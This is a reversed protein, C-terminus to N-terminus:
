TIQILNIFLRVVIIENAPVSNEKTKSRNNGNDFLFLSGDPLIMAAHQAWQWELDNSPKFFYKDMHSPWNSSSGVIWNM